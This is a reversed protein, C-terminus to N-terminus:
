SGFEPERLGGRVAPVDAQATQALRGTVPVYGLSRGLDDAVGVVCHSPVCRPFSVDVAGSPQASDGLVKQCLRTPIEEHGSGSVSGGAQARVLGRVAQTGLDLSQFGLRRM